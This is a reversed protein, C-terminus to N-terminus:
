LTLPRSFGDYQAGEEEEEEQEQTTEGMLVGEIVITSCSSQLICVYKAHWTLYRLLPYSKCTRTSACCKKGTTHIRCADM